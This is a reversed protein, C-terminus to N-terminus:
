GCSPTAGAAAAKLAQGIVDGLREFVTRYGAALAGAGNAVPEEYSAQCRLVTAAGAPRLSWSLQVGAARGLAADFRQVDLSVRWLGPSTASNAAPAAALTQEARLTVASRIEDPLPAVWREHELVAISGDGLRVVFQPVDVQVPVTVPLVEFRVSSAPVAVAANGTSAPPAVLSHFHTPPTSSCGSLVAALVWLSLWEVHVRHAPKM